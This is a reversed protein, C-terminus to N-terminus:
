GKYSRLEKGNRYAVIEKGGWGNRMPVNRLEIDADKAFVKEILLMEGYCAGCHFEGCVNQMIGHKECEM